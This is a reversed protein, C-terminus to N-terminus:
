LSAQKNHENINVGVGRMKEVLNDYGREIQSFSTITTEGESILGALFLAIGARLDIANVTTGKLKNGGQIKLMDGQIEFEAGLKKLEETYQYRGPFRLDIIRSETKAKLGYVTFLPQMDSNLSPYPGTAIEFPYIESPKVLIKDKDESIFYKLGSERLYILPIELHKFPFNSIEIEGGTTAAAIVYTLAEMNDPICSHEVRRLTKVGEIVISEQGFVTIRAGMKNLMAILDMIEPRIHPNWIKTKGKALTGMLIANETAGTSRIPLFYEAGTLVKNKVEACLYNNEEWVEAGMEKMINIHLDYKREGIKCGGPLPVKGAGTKTLLAGLILLTNRISRKEWQLTDTAVKGNIKITNEDINSIDKGLLKLMEEHLKNDLLSAPYNFIIIPDDTLISATLLKLSSNKAGSLRIHGYLKSKRISIKDEKNFM